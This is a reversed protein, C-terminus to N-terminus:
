WVLPILRYCVQQQYAQYGPLNEELFIDEDHTKLVYAIMVGLCALWSWLIPFVLATGFYMMLAFTYIPHRVIRYPGTDVVQHEFQLAVEATWMCGLYGRSYFTGMVGVFTLLCGMLAVVWHNGCALLHIWDLTAAFGFGVLLVSLGAISIILFKDLTRSAKRIDNLTRRGGNWYFLLWIFWLCLTFWRLIQLSSDM